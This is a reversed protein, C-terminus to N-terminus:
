RGRKGRGNGKRREEIGVRRGKRNKEGEGWKRYEKREGEWKGGKGRERRGQTLSMVATEMLM